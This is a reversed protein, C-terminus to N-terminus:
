CPPSVIIVASANEKPYPVALVHGDPVSAVWCAVHVATNGKSFAVEYLGFENWTTPTMQINNKLALGQMSSQKGNSKSPSQVRTVNSSEKVVFSFKSGMKTNFKQEVEKVCIMAIERLRETNFSAEKSTIKFVMSEAGTKFLTRSIVYSPLAEDFKRQCPQYFIPRKIEGNKLLMENHIKAWKKLFNDVVLVEALLLSCSIGISYGGCKFNTVQVYVLPSFEPNQHDIENWFVLQEEHNKNRDLEDLFRPLTLRCRAELLRIGSDNCVIQQLCTNHDDQRRQLRGALLPYDVLAKALSEVIWGALNWGSDEDTCHNYYLVIQYCGGISRREMVGDAVVQLALRPETVKLPSVSMVSVVQLLSEHHPHTGGNNDHVDMALQLRKKTDYYITQFSKM